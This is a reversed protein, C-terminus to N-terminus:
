ITDIVRISGEPVHCPTGLSKKAPNHVPPHWCPSRGTLIATMPDFTDMLGLPEVDPGSEAPLDILVDENISAREM